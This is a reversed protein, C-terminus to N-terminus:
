AAEKSEDETEDENLITIGAETVLHLLEGLNAMMLHLSDGTLDNIKNEDVMEMLAGIAGTHRLAAFMADSRTAASQPLLRIGDYHSTRYEIHLATNNKM